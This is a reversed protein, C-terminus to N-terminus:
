EEWGKRELWTTPWSRWYKRSIGKRESWEAQRGVGGLCRVGGVRGVGGMGEMGM